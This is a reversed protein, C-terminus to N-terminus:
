KKMRLDRKSIMLRWRNLEEIQEKNWNAAAGILNLRYVDDDTLCEPNRGEVWNYAYLIPRWVYHFADEALEFFMQVLEERTAMDM